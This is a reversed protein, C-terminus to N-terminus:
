QKTQNKLIEDLNTKTINDLFDFLCILNCFVESHHKSSKFGKLKLQKSAAGSCRKCNRDSQEINTNSFKIFEIIQQQDVRSSFHKKNCFRFSRKGEQDTIKIVFQYMSNM